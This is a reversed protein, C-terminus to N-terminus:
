SIIFDLNIGLRWPVKENKILLVCIEKLEIPDVGINDALNILGINGDTIKLFKPVNSYGKILNMEYSLNNEHHQM